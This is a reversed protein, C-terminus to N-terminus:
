KYLPEIGELEGKILKIRLEILKDMSYKEMAFERARKGMEKMKERDNFQKLVGKKIGAVTKDCLLGTEGDSIVDKIGDVDTGICPLECAMAEILVKPHGEKHSVMIFAEAKNLYDPLEENPILGLFEVNKIEERKKINTLEEKLKGDGIIWLKFEPLEKMVELLMYLNKEPHLRGVFVMLNQIKESEIRKFHDADVHNPLLFIKDKRTHKKVDDGLRETTVAITDAMKFALIEVLRTFFAFLPREHELLKSSSWRHHLFIRAGALKYIFATIIARTDPIEVYDVVRYNLIVSFFLYCYRAFPVDFFTIHEVNDPLNKFQKNEYSLIYVNEFSKSYAEFM